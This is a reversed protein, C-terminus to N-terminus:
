RQAAAADSRQQFEASGIHYTPRVIHVGQDHLSDLLNDTSLTV